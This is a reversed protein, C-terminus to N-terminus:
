LADRLITSAENLAKAAKCEDCPEKEDNRYECLRQCEGKEARDQLLSMVRSLSMMSRQMATYNGM